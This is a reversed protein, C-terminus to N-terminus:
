RSIGEPAVVRAPGLIEGFSQDYGALWHLTEHLTEHLAHPQAAIAHCLMMAVLPNFGCEWAQHGTDHCIHCSDGDPELQTMGDQLAKIATEYQEITFRM